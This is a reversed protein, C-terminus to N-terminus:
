ATAGTTIEVGLGEVIVAEARTLTIATEAATTSQPSSM